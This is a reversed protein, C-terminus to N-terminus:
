RPTVALPEFEGRRLGDLFCDVETPTYALTAGDSLRRISLSGDPSRDLRLGAVPLEAPGALLAATLARWEPENLVLVPGRGRDKTDRVHYGDSDLLVEICGTADESLAAKTWRDPVLPTGRSSSPATM